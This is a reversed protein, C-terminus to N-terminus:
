LKYKEVMRIGIRQLLFAMVQWIARRHVPLHQVYVATYEPEGVAGRDAKFAGVGASQHLLIGQREAERVLLSSLMRYLGTKKPLSTDYGFLPTTMVGNRQYYGLIGDLRGDKELGILTLTKKQMALRIFESTFQPNHQSYKDLYLANYLGVIREAHEEGLEEHSLIRYDSRELLQRDRGLTNRVRWKGQAPWDPHFLYVYRSPILIYGARQLGDYFDPCLKRCVSRFAVIHRPFREVCHETIWEADEATMEHYLNTSLLWNNVIAMRNSQSVRMWGGLTSLLPTFLGKWLASDLMDLEEKAYSVYHTYPSCVYSNDYEAENVTLPMIRDDITLALLQTQVNQVYRSPEETMLPLIYSRAYDGEQMREWQIHHITAADHVAITKRSNM